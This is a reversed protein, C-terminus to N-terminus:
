NGPMTPFYLLWLTAHCFVANGIIRVKGDHGIKTLLPSKKSYIYEFLLM